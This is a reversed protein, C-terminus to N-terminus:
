PTGSLRDIPFGAPLPRDPLFHVVAVGIVSLFAMLGWARAQGRSTATAALNWALLLTVALPYAVAAVIAGNDGGHSGIVWWDDAMFLVGLQVAALVIAIHEGDLIKPITM